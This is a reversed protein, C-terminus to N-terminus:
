AVCGACVFGYKQPKHSAEAIKTAIKNRPNNHRRRDTQELLCCVCAKSLHSVLEVVQYLLINGNTFNETIIRALGLM